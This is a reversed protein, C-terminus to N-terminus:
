LRIRPDLYAYILDIALSVLSVFIGFVVVVGQIATYDRFNIRDILYRGLGPWSFTTETLVAGALLIAFQLGMMTLVPLFANRLAYSYTVTREKLGRARAATVFDLRMTEFMNSRTLRIFIGCLVLGLTLSPLLLYKLSLVFKYINGELLSDVTFLGTSINLGGISIYHWGIVTWLSWGTISFIVFLALNKRSLKIHKWKALALCVGLLAPCVLSSLLFHGLFEGPPPSLPIKLGLPEMTPATRGGVPLWHLGVGFIMQFIMGLFFVPIAYTVIAFVRIVNDKPKNYAKSSEVGLFIGILVAITMSYIALELTAPFASFIQQSVSSYDQMSLGLNGTFLGVVYDLYQAPLPKDLGLRARMAAMAEPNEMKEFHLLVPDGPLVRMILFVSTLLIFIMPITLLIRSIIYSRLTM